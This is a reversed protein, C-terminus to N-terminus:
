VKSQDSEAASRCFWLPILFRHPFIPESNLVIGSEQLIERTGLFQTYRKNMVGVGRARQVCDQCAQCWRGYRWRIWRLGLGEFAAYDLLVRLGSTIQQFSFGVHSLSILEREELGWMLVCPFVALIVPSIFIEVRQVGRPPLNLRGEGPEMTCQRPQGRWAVCYPRYWFGLRLIALVNERDGGGRFELSSSCPWVFSVSLLLLIEGGYVVRGGTSCRCHLVLWARLSVESYICFKLCTLRNITSTSKM